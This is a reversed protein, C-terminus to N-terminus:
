ESLEGPELDATKRKPKRQRRAAAEAEDDSYFEEDRGGANGSGDEGDYCKQARLEATPVIRSHDPLHSLLQGAQLIGEALYEPHCLVSYFPAHVPGFVELVKGVVALDDARVVLTDIDALKNCDAPRLILLKDVLSTVTGLPELRSGLPVTRTLHSLGEQEALREYSLLDDEAAEGESDPIMEYNGYFSAPTVGEDESESSSSSSVEDEAAHESLMEVDRAVSDKSEQDSVDMKAGTFKRKRLLSVLMHILM